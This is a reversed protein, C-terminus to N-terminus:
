YIRDLIDSSVPSFGIPISYFLEGTEPNKLTFIQGNPDAEVWWKKKEAESLSLYKELTMADSEKELKEWEDDTPFTDPLTTQAHFLEIM